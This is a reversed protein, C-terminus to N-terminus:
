APVVAAVAGYDRLEKTGYITDSTVLTGLYEQKYQSQTRIDQQTALAFADKHLMLCARFKTDTPSSTSWDVTNALEDV